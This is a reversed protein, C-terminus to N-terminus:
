TIRRTLRGVRSVGIREEFIDGMQERLKKDFSVDIRKGGKLILSVRNRHRGSWVYDSIQEWKIPTLRFLSIGEKTLYVKSYGSIFIATLGVIFFLTSGLTGTSTEVVQGDDLLVDTLGCVLQLLFFGVILLNYQQVNRGADLLISDPSIHRRKWILYLMGGGLLGALIVFILNFVIDIFGESPLNLFALLARGGLSLAVLIFIGVLIPTNFREATEAGSAREIVQSVAVGIWIGMFATFTVVGITVEFSM